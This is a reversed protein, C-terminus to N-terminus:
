DDEEEDPMAVVRLGAQLVIIRVDPVMAKLQRQYHLMQALNMKEACEIFVIDGPKFARLIKAEVPLAVAPPEAAATKKKSM